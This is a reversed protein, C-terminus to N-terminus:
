KSRFYNDTDEMLINVVEDAWKDYFEDVMQWFDDSFPRAKIGNKAISQVIAWIVSNDDTIGKEQCWDSIANFPPPKSGPRRGWEYQNGDDDRGEVYNIYHWTSLKILDIDAKTADIENYLHSDVLTNFGVKENVGNQQMAVQMLEKAKAALEDLASHLKALDM